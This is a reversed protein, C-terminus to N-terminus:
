LQRPENNLVVVAEQAKSSSKKQQRMTKIDASLSVKKHEIPLMSEMLRMIARELNSGKLTGKEAVWAPDLNTILCHFRWKMANKAQGDSLEIAELM